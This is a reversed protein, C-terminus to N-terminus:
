GFLMLLGTTLGALLLWVLLGAARKAPRDPWAPRTRGWLELLAFVLGPLLLFVMASRVAEDGGDGILLSGLFGGVVVLVLVKAMGRPLWRGVAPSDPLSKEWLQLVCPLATLLGAVLTALTLGFFPEAVFLFVAFRLV